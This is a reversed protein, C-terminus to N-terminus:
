GVPTPVMAATVLSQMVRLDTGQEPHWQVGLVFGEGEVAEVTGDEARASVTLGEGVRDVAQHHFTPVVVEAEPLLEALRTGPLPRIPHSGYHNPSGLHAAGEELHQILTGGCVVNLLQMGRCIGLVPLGSALAARLLAAEWHDREPAFARTRPHPQEGYLSPNVDPGGAIVLGDVRALLDPAHEAPQPPLLLPIGGAEQVLLPYRHPLLVARQADWHDWKAETLYTSIGIVPRNTM